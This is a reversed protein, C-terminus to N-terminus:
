RPLAHHFKELIEEEFERAGGGDVGIEELVQRKLVPWDEDRIGTACHYLHRAMQLISVLTIADYGADLTEHHYRIAECIIAPLRWHRAAFFGVVAHDTNFRRNEEGCDPWGGQASLRFSLGYDPIRQMLIPVGCAHFMGAMHALDPSVNCAALQARAVLAALLAISESREWFRQYFRERVGSATGPPLGKVIGAIRSPGIAQVAKDVGEIRKGRSHLPSNALRLVRATLGADRRILAAIAKPNESPAALLKGLEHLVYPQPPIQFGAACPEGRMGDGGRLGAERANM